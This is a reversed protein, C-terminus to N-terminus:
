FAAGLLKCKVKSGLWEGCQEAVTIMARLRTGGVGLDSYECTVVVGAGTVPGEDGVASAGTDATGYVADAMILNLSFVPFDSAPTM